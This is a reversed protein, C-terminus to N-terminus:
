VNVNVNVNIKRGQLDYLASKVDESDILTTNIGTPSGSGISLAQRSLSSITSGSFWGRFAGSPTDDTQKVFSKGADNLMYVDKVTQSKTSGCFDYVDSSLQEVKTPKISQNTASFTVIEGTMQWEEGWDSGPVAIIYPTNAKMEQAFDFLM